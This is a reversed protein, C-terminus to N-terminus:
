IYIYSYISHAQLLFLLTPLPEFPPSKWPCFPYIWSEAIPLNKTWRLIKKEAIWMLKQESKNLPDASTSAVVHMLWLFTANVPLFMAVFYYQFEFCCNPCGLRLYIPQMWFAVLTSKPIISCLMTLFLAMHFIENTSRTVQLKYSRISPFTQGVRM